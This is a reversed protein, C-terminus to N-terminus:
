AAAKSEPKGLAVPEPAKGRLPVEEIFWAILFGLACIAAAALFVHGTGTAFAALYGHGETPVHGQLSGTFLSGFAAVGISGGLTRFLTVAGSAAGINAMEVSNQAVATSLQMSFGLGTGMLAMAFGTTLRGTEADITSLLVAGATLFLGGLIFFIKYNGTATMRKGVIQSVVLLPVMMPLLLLGSNAASAGQVTQQFLPLYLVSGFMVVGGVLATLAALTLNRTRFIGLPIVPDVARREIVLFAASAAVALVALGIIQASLWAYDVGGWTAILVLAAIATTLALIGAYDITVKRRAVPLELRWWSWAFAVLGLPINIYFAWRWDLGDTIVGGLLPGGITGVAMTTATMGQYKGRERPPVLAGIVAFATVAIGGAGLGQLARFGILASMSWSAGALVSGILFVGIASLFVTKRSYLDGLKAWVPTSIASLLTYATVVWAVHSLGGLERVITPMATGVIANDLMALLMALLVGALVLRIPRTPATKTETMEASM